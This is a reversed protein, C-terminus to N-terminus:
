NLDRLWQNAYARMRTYVTTRRRVTHKPGCKCQTQWHSEASAQCNVINDKQPLTHRDGLFRSVCTAWMTVALLQTCRSTRMSITGFRLEQKLNTASCQKHQRVWCFWNTWLIKAQQDRVCTVINNLKTKCSISIMSLPTVRWHNKTRMTLWIDCHVDSCHM